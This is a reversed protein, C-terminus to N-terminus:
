ASSSIRKNQHVPSDIQVVEETVVVSTSKKITLKTQIKKEVQKVEEERNCEEDLDRLVDTL